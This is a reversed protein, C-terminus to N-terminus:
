WYIEAPVETRESETEGSRQLVASRRNSGAPADNYDRSQPGGALQGSQSYPGQRQGNPGFPGMMPMYHKGEPDMYGMPGMFRARYYAGLKDLAMRREAELEEQTMNQEAANGPVSYQHLV